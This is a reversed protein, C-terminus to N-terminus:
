ELFPMEFLQGASLQFQLIESLLIESKGFCEMAQLIFTNTMTLANGFSHTKQLNSNHAKVTDINSNNEQTNLLM